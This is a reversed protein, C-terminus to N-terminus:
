VRLVAKRPALAAEELPEEVRYDAYMQEDIAIRVHIPADLGVGMSPASPPAPALGLRALIIPAIFGLLTPLGLVTWGLAAHGPGVAALAFMVLSVLGGLLVGWGRMKIVGVVSGLMTAALAALGIGVPISGYTSAAEGAGVAALTMATGATITGGTLFLRRWANPSFDRLASPTTLSPRAALLAIATTFSLAALEIEPSRGFVACGVFYVLTPFMVLWAVGRALIQTLVSGRTLAVGSGALLAIFTLALWHSHMGSQMLMYSAGGATGLMGLAAVLKRGRSLEGPVM